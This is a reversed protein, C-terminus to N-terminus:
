CAHPESEESALQAMAQVDRLAAQKVESGESQLPARCEGAAGSEAFQMLLLETAASARRGHVDDSAATVLGSHLLDTGNGTPPPLQM